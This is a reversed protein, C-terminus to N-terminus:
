FGLIGEPNFVVELVRWHEYKERPLDYGRSGCRMIARRASEFAAEMTSDTLTAPELLTPASVLKGDPDLEVRLVVRLSGANALGNPPNWCRQVAFKLADKEGASMPPGSAATEPEELEGAAEAEAEAAEAAAARIAEALEEEEAQRQAELEAAQRELEERERQESALREQEARRATEAEAERQRQQEAAAAAAAREEAARAEAEAAALQEAFDRPRPVPRSSTRMEDEEQVEEPETEDVPEEEPEPTDSEQPPPPTDRDSRTSGTPLAPPAFPAPAAPGGLANAQPRAPSSPLGSTETGFSSLGGLALGGLPDDPAEEIDSVAVAVEPQALEELLATLDAEQDQASPAEVDDTVAGTHELELEPTEGVEGGLDDFAMEFDEAFVEPEVEPEPEPQLASASILEVEAVKIEEPVSPAILSLEFIAAILIGGHFLGSLVLGKRM